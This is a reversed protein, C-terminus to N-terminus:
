DCSLTGTNQTNSVTDSINLANLFHRRMTLVQWTNYVLTYFSPPLNFHIVFTLSLFNSSSLLCLIPYSIIPCSLIPYSLIPSSLDLIRLLCFYPFTQALTTMSLVTLLFYSTVTTVFYFALMVHCIPLM